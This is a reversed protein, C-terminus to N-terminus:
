ERRLVLCANTGSLGHADLLQTSHPLHRVRNSLCLPCDPDPYEFNVTPPILGERMGLLGAALQIPGGAALPNGVAGKVSFTPLSSLREGFIDRLVRSETADIVLHGPGWANICEVEGPSMRANALALRISQTLGGLLEGAPDTAYAYGDVFAYAPRPSSEPELVFMAAGEGIAGTSRWRDFPRCSREPMEDTDAALKAMKLELMPHLYIPAETGGCVAMECEGSAVREAAHGIADTGSCCASQLALTRTSSGLWHAISGSISAASAGVATPFGLVRGKQLMLDVTHNIVGFDMLAAGVVVLPSLAAAAQPSLGADTLALRTGVMAFQTHRPMRKASVEPFHKAFSFDPVEAASFPGTGARKLRPVARVRSLPERIGQWFADRGTGAPTVPGIGTIKVRRRIM